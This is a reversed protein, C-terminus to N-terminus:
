SRGTAGIFTATPRPLQCLEWESDMAQTTAPSRRSSVHLRRADHFRDHEFVVNMVLTMFADSTVSRDAEYAGVWGRGMRRAPAPWSDAGDAEHAGVLQPQTHCRTWVSPKTGSQITVGRAHFSVTAIRRFRAM